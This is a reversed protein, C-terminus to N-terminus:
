CNGFIPQSLPSVRVAGAPGSTLFDFKQFLETFSRSVTKFQKECTFVGLFLKRPGYPQDQGSQAVMSFDTWFKGKVALPQM